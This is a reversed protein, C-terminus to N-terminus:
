TYFVKSSSSTRKKVFSCRQVNNRGKAHCTGDVALLSDVTGIQLGSLSMTAAIELKPM